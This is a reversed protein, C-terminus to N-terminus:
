DKFILSEQFNKAITIEGKLAINIAESMTKTGTLDMLFKQNDTIEKQQERITIPFNPDDLTKM